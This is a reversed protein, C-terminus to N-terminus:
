HEGDQRLRHKLGQQYWNGQNLMILYKNLKKKTVISPYLYIRANARWWKKHALIHYPTQALAQSSRIHQKYSAPKILEIRHENLEGRRNRIKINKYEIIIRSLNPLISVVEM